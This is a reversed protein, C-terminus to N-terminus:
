SFAGVNEANLTESLTARSSVHFFFDNKVWIKRKTIFLIRSGRRCQYRERIFFDQM